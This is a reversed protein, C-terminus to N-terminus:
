ISGEMWGHTHVKAPFRTKMGNAKTCRVMLGCMVGQLLKSFFNTQLEKGFGHKKGEKYNGEYRSGDAWVETGKGDQLDDKWFGEYKAGNMHTYVGYGNAKDEKWEGSFIDGDIHWFTGQGNAKNNKWM